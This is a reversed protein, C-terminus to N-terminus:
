PLGERQRRIAELATELADWAGRQVYGELRDLEKRYRTLMDLLPGRNLEFVERWLAGSSAAIRTTDRFGGAAYTLIRADLSAVAAVLAYAVLHPLHSVAAVIRDHEDPSLEVVRSGVGEWLVRARKVADPSTMGSPTLLTLAGEFLDARAAAFGRRESGAMPHGGVFRLPRGAALRDALGVLPAKVSGVDTLVADAEVHPWLAEMLSTLVGLPTALIVLDAGRVGAIPDTEWRDIAGEDLAAELPARRKGVGVVERCLDRGKLAKALSGGILGLGVITVREFSV